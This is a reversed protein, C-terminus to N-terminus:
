KVEKDKKPKTLHNIVSPLGIASAIASVIPTAPLIFSFIGVLAIFLTKSPLTKGNEISIITQRTVGVRQALEEQTWNAGQRLNRLNKTFNSILEENLLNKKM